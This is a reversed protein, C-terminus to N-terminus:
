GFGAGIRRGPQGAREGGAIRQQVAAARPRALAPADDGLPEYGTAVVPELGAELSGLPRLTRIVRRSIKQIVDAIDTDPPSEVALGRPKRGQDPRDLDGGALFLLPYPGNLNLASGFRQILTVSGTHVPPREVGGKVAQNVDYPAITTRMITHVKATRNQASATWSRLPSPVSGVWHRTPVWPLVCEVLHAATQAMRRAAWSPCVRRRQCSFPRRREPHCTDCGLRLFGHALIGCRVCDYVEREGDAPLGPADPDAAGSALFTELHDAIVQYLM